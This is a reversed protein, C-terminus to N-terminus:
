VISDGYPPVSEPGLQLFMMKEPITSTDNHRCSEASKLMSNKKNAQMYSSNDLVYKKFLGTRTKEGDSNFLLSRM